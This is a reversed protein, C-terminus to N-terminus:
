NGNFRAILIQSAQRVVIKVREAKVEDEQYFAWRAVQGLAVELCVERSLVASHRFGDEWAKAAVRQAVPDCYNAISM